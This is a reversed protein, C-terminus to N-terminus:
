LAGNSGTRVAGAGLPLFTKRLRGAGSSLRVGLLLLQGSLCALTCRAVHLLRRAAEPRCGDM